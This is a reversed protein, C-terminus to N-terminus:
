PRSVSASRRVSGVSRASPYIYATCAGEDGGFFESHVVPAAGIEKAIQDPLGAPDVLTSFIWLPGDTLTPLDSLKVDWVIRHPWEHLYWRTLVASKYGSDLVAVTADAPARDLENRVFGRNALDRKVESTPKIVTASVGIFGVALLFVFLGLQADRMMRPTKAFFREIIAASGVGMLLCIGALLHQGVRPSDGYPYRRLVAAFFTLVFPALLLCDIAWRRRRFLVIAGVVLLLFAVGSWPAALDIPYGFYNGTHTWWFWIVFQVPNFPPFIWCRVQDPGSGAFQKGIFAEVLLGFSAAVIVAFMAALVRQRMTIHRVMVFFTAAIGGAVFVSPLSMFLAVPAVLILLVLWRDRRGLVFMTAPILLMMSILLDTSYPKLEVAHRISLDSVALVGTAITAALPELIKRAWFGFLVVASVGALMPILRMSYESMGLGRYMAREIWLFGIPAVQIYELPQLLGRYGRDLINVGLFGEDGWLPLGLAYRFLRLVVGVVMFLVLWRELRLGRIPQAASEEMFVTSDIPGVGPHVVWREKKNGGVV